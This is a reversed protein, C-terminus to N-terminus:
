SHYSSKGGLWKTGLYVLPTEIVSMSCKLMWYPLIIGVLFPWNADFPKDFAYFALTVFTVTDIFQGIFNSLNNRLWLKKKGFLARLKVFVAVDMFESFAFAVLSAFSMRLSFGFITDYAAESPFFRKSPPLITAILTFVFLFAIIILGSRIVSRAREKGFVETIVDNVTFTLPLLLLSVSANFSFGFLSGLPVTKAGMTEAVVICFIYLSVLFDFKQIAKFFM